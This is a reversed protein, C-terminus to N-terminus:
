NDDNKEVERPGDAAWPSAGLSAPPGLEVPLVPPSKTTQPRTTPDIRDATAPSHEPCVTAADSEADSGSDSGDTGVSRARSIAAGHAQGQRALATPELGKM